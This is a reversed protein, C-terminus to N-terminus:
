ESERALSSFFSSNAIEGTQRDELMRKRQQQTMAIKSAITHTIHISCAQLLAPWRYAVAVAAAALILKM